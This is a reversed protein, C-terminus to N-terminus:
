NDTTPASTATGDGNSVAKSFDTHVSDTEAFKGGSWHYTIVDESSAYGMADGKTYQQKTVVLDGRDIESYVPPEEAAFVNKYTGSDERYVYTAIGMADSCTMLNVVVDPTNNGTVKGYSVDIPYERGGCTKLERKVASSVKPDEKLLAAADVRRTAEKAAAGSGSAQPVPSRSETTSRAAGADRAGTGDSDCGAVLLGFAALGAVATTGAAATNRSGTRLGRM